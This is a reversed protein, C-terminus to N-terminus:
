PMWHSTVFRVVVALALEDGDGKVLLDKGAGEFIGEVVEDVVLEIEREKIIAVGVVDAGRGVIGGNQQLDDEVGVGPANDGAPDLLAAPLVDDEHRQREIGTGM